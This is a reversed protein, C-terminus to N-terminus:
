VAEDAAIEEPSTGALRRDLITILHPCEDVPHDAPCDLAHQLFERAATARGILGDLEAVQGRLADRWEGSSRHLVASAADLSIGLRAVAHIFALRRLQEPGYMRRNRRREAPQLLGREEYYRLTSTRVGLMAAAEGIGILEDM